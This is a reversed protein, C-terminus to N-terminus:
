GGTATLAPSSRRPEPGPWPPFPGREGRVPRGAGERDLLEELEAVIQRLTRRGDLLNRQAYLLCYGLATLQESDTLQEVYRLDITERNLSVGDRGLTRLKVREGRRVGPRAPAAASLQARRGAGPTGACPSPPRRGKALATIDRPVYRDMQIIRDAAHFWAGSSGAVLVTSVGYRM